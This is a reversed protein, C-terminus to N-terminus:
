GSAHYATPNQIEKRNAGIPWVPQKEYLSGIKADRDFFLSTVWTHNWLAGFGSFDVQILNQGALFRATEFYRDSNDLVIFGGKQLYKIALQACALRKQGDIVIIDFQKNCNAIAHVYDYPDTKLFINVNNLRSIKKYYVENHEVSTVDKCRSALFLTSNGSGWEFASKDRLDLQKLYEVCPYTFWPIPNGNRDVAEGRLFATGYGFDFILQKCVRTVSICLNILQKCVRTVSICLNILQKCVRTVSICLNIFRKWSLSKEM